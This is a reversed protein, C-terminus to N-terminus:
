LIRGAFERGEAIEVIRGAGLGFGIFIGVENQVVVRAAWGCSKVISTVKDKLAVFIRGVGVDGAHIEIHLVGRMADSQQRVGILGRSARESPNITRNVIGERPCDQKRLFTVGFGSTQNFCVGI